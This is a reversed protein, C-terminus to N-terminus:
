NQPRLTRDPVLAAANARRVPSTGGALDFAYLDGDIDAAYVEGNAVAPSSQVSDRTTFSWLYAGNVASLAYVRGDFSGVYVVGNAVAPSSDVMSGTTFSWLLTGSSASLAHVNGDGSGVYVVGNAVAPSSDVFGMTFSAWLVKGTAAGLAYVKGDLSGVYVVGNAVAPSSNVTNGTVFTWLGAGTSANLAHVNGDGSGVYVVGNAVAPSSFVYSGISSSWILTGTAASLAYVKGDRSGVYVVGNAVAPSSEVTNGTIFSWILTGTAASLAYVKNDGGVYVVGNAVAPSSEVFGTPFAWLLTGTAANVANLIGDESGVYTVGNAVAPSSFIPGRAAFAWDLDIGAVNSPGLVNETANRGRHNATNRFQAWDTQVTFPAQASLGSHRGVATVWHTGPVASSAVQISIGGFSGTGDTSALAQDTIDFYVDVAENPGFNAGSVTLKSTPPGTGPSLGTSPPTPTVTFNSASLATGSANTVSIPGTTAGAPVTAHIESSSTVTFTAGTGNFAVATIGTFGSGLITVSTGVPGSIPSFGTIKPVAAFAPAAIGILGIAVLMVVLAARASARRIM